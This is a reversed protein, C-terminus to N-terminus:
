VAYLAQLELAEDAVQTGRGRWTPIAAVAARTTASSLRAMFNGSANATSGEGLLYPTQSSGRAIVMSVSNRPSRYKQWRKKIDDMKKKILGKLKDGVCKRFAVM